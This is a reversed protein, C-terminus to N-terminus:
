VSAVNEHQFMLATNVSNIWLMVSGVSVEVQGKACFFSCVPAHLHLLYIRFPFFDKNALHPM